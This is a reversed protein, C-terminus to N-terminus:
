LDSDYGSGTRHDKLFSAMWQMNHLRSIIITSYYSKRDNLFSELLDRGMMIEVERPFGAAGDWPEHM